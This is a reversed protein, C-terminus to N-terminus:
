SSYKGDFSKGLIENSVTLVVKKEGLDGKKPLRM